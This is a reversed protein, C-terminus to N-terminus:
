QRAGCQLKMSDISQVLRLEERLKAHQAGPKLQASPGRFSANEFIEVRAAPGVLISEAKHKWYLSGAPSRLSPLAIPGAITLDDQGQYGQRPFLRAWCGKALTPDSRTETPAIIVMPAVGLPVTGGSPAAGAAGAMFAAAAILITRAGAAVTM